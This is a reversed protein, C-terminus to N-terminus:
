EAPSIYPIRITEKLQGAYIIFLFACYGFIIWKFTTIIPNRRRKRRRKSKSKRRAFQEINKNILM